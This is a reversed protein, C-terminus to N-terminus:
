GLDFIKNHLDNLKEKVCCTEVFHFEENKTDEVRLITIKSFGDEKLYKINEKNLYDEWNNKNEIHVFYSNSYLFIYDFLEVIQDINYKLYDNKYSINTVQMNEDVIETYNNYDEISVFRLNAKSKKAMLAGKYHLVKSGNKTMDVLIEYNLRPIKIAEKVLRPDATYVGEVDSIIEVYLAKLIIGLAIATTDSGGRGLTAVDRGITLGQFGPVVVIDYNSFKNLIDLDNIDIIDANTFSDNTLIGIEKTSLSVAKLGNEILFDTFVVSSIIEGISLLRDQEKKSVKNKILNKLTDTAYPEGSRGMASVVCLVKRNESLEKEIHIISKKFGEINRISSGGFKQVIIEMRDGVMYGKM